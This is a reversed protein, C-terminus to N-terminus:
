VNLTSDQVRPGSLDAGLERCTEIVQEFFGWAAPNSLFVEPHFLVSACGGVQKVQELAARLQPLVEEGDSYYLASDMFVLPVERLRSERRQSLDFMRYIRGCGARFGIWSVFGVSFDYQIGAQELQHCFQQPDFRLYHNRHCLVPRGVVQELREKEERYSNRDRAAFSGHLGITMGAAQIRRVIERSIEWRIDTRTSFRGMRYPGSMLFYCAGIGNKQEFELLREITALISRPSLAISLPLGRRPAVGCSHLLAKLLCAPECTTTRDIDHSIIVQFTDPTAPGPEQGLARALQRARLDIWPRSIDWVAAAEEFRGLPDQKGTELERELSLAKFMEELVAEKIVCHGDLELGGPVEGFRTAVTVPVDLGLSDLLVRTAYALAPEDDPAGINLIAEM